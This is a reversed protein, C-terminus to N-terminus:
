PFTSAEDAHMGECCGWHQVVFDPELDALGDRDVSTDFLVEAESLVSRDLEAVIFSVADPVGLEDPVM